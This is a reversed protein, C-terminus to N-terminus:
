ETFLVAGGQPMLTLIVEGNENMKLQREGATRDENDFLMKVNQNSLM